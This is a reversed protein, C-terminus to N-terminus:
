ETMRILIKAKDLGRRRAYLYTNIEEGTRLTVTKGSWQLVVSDLDDVLNKVAKRNWSGINFSMYIRKGPDIDFRQETTNSIFLPSSNISDEKIHWTISAQQATANRMDIRRMPDCGFCALAGALLFVINKM